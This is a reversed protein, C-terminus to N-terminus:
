IHKPELASLIKDKNKAYHDVLKPIKEPSEKQLVREFIKRIGEVNNELSIKLENLEHVVNDVSHHAIKVDNKLYVYEQYTNIWHLVFSLHFFGSLEQELEMIKEYCNRGSRFLEVRNINHKLEKTSALYSQLRGLKFYAVILPPQMEIARGYCGLSQDIINMDPLSMGWHELMSAKNYWHYSDTFDYIEDYIEVVDGFRKKKGLEKVLIQMPYEENLKSEEFNAKRIKDLRKEYKKLVTKKDGGFLGM